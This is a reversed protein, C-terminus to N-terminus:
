NSIKILCMCLIRLCILNINQLKKVNPVSSKQFFDCKSKTSPINKSKWVTVNGPSILAKATHCKPLFAMSTPMQFRVKCNHLALWRKIEAHQMNTFMNSEGDGELIGDLWKTGRILLTSWQQRQLLIKWLSLGKCAKKQVEMHM